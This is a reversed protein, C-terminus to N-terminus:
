DDEKELQKIRKIVWSISLLLAGIPLILPWFVALIAGVGLLGERDKEETWELWAWGIAICLIYGIFYAALMM